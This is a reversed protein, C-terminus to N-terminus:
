YEIIARGLINGSKLSHCADNIENLKYRQTVLKDLPFKGERHWRLFMPFDRDPYTAGLSGRYQRQESVFLRSNLTIDWGP